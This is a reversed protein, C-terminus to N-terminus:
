RLKPDLLTMFDVGHAALEKACICNPFQTSVSLQIRRQAGFM